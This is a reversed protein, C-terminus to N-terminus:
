HATKCSKASDSVRILNMDRLIPLQRQGVVHPVLSFYRNSRDEVAQNVSEGANTVISPDAIISALEKLVEYGMLLTKKSLKGLPM